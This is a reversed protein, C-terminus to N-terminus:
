TQPTEVWMKFAKFDGKHYNFAAEKIHLHPTKATRWTATVKGWSYIVSGQLDWM